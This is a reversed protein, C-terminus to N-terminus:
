GLVPLLSEPLQARLDEIEGPAVHRTLVAAAAAVAYSAETEGEIGAAKGFRELFEDIQDYGLPKASPDWGEYYIGRVLEPLQSALQASEEVTIRDRLAHLYARLVRQALRRDESGLREGLEHLWARTLNANREILSPDSM